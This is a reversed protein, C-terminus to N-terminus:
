MLLTLHGDDDGKMFVETQMQQEVTTLVLIVSYMVSLQGILLPTQYDDGDKVRWGFDTAVLLLITGFSHWNLALGSVNALQPM